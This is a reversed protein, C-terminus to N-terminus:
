EAAFEVHATHDLQSFWSLYTIHPTARALPGLSHYLSESSVELHLCITANAFAVAVSPYTAQRCSSAPNKVVMLEQAHKDASCLDLHLNPPLFICTGM